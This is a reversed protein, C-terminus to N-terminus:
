SLQWVLRICGLKKRKWLKSTWCCQLSGFESGTYYRKWFRKIYSYIFLGMYGDCMTDTCTHTSMHTHIWICLICISIGVIKCRYHSLALLCFVEVQESQAGWHSPLSFQFPLLSLVQTNLYLSNLLTFLCFGWVCLCSFYRISFGVITWRWGVSAWDIWWCHGWCLRSGM